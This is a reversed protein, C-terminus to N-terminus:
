CLGNPNQVHLWKQINWPGLFGKLHINNLLKVSIPFTTEIQVLEFIYKSCGTM